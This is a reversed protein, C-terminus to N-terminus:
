DTQPRKKVIKKIAVVFADVLFIAIAIAGAAGITYVLSSLAGDMDSLFLNYVTQYMGAGPVITLIAPILMTTVPTKLIRALIHSAVALVLGSVFTATLMTSIRDIYLYVAWGAMGLVGNIFLCKKPENIVSFSIIACFAFICQMIM